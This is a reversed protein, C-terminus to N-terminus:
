TQDSGTGPAPSAALLLPQFFAAQLISQRLRKARALNATVQAEAARILSLRRDAEAVIRHQEALPPLAIPFKRLTSLSMSALNVSQTAFESFWEIGYGNGCMSLYTPLVHNADARARFVHNQHIAEPIEGNWVHGRGLEDRDGGENFLVDGPRLRLDEIDRETALITKIEDLDLYGRQVNAVRLYPVERMPALSVRSGSKALGGVIDALADFRAWTWGQPLQSLDGIIPAEPERYAGKSSRKARREALVRQLLQSSTEFARGEARALEAETPVLRGECAAKLVSARYRKLNARARMLAAVSADLRSLQEDLYEVIETQVDLPPLPIRLGEFFQVPVRLQGAAGKMNMKANRRVAPTFLFHLLYKPLLGPGARLVHFETSGAARGHHLATALAFKGNEMCPTIKAFIVDGNQFATYGKKLESWPRLSSGDIHGSEEEVARMPVFSVLDTDDPQDDFRRPNLDVADSLPVPASELLVRYIAPEEQAVLRSTM